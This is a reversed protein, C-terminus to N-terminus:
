CCQITKKQFEFNNTEASLTKYLERKERGGGGISVDPHREERRGTVDATQEPGAHHGHRQRVAHREVLHEPRGRRVADEPVLREADVGAGHTGSAGLVAQYM